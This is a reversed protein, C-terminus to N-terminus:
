LCRKDCYEIKNPTMELGEKQKKDFADKIVTSRLSTHTKSLKCNDMALLDKIGM